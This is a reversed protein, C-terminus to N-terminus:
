GELKKKRIEVRSTDCMAEISRFLPKNIAKVRARSRMKVPLAKAALSRWGSKKLRGVKWGELKGGDVRERRGEVSPALSKL